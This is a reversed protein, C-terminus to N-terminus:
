CKYFVLINKGNQILKDVHIAIGEASKLVLINEVTESSSERRLRFGTLTEISWVNIVIVNNYKM